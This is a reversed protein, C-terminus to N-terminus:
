SEGDADADADTDESYRHQLEQRIRQRESEGSAGGFREIFRRRLEAPDTEARRRMDAPDTSAPGPAATPSGPGAGRGSRPYLMPGASGLNLDSARRDPGADPSSGGAAPGRAAGSPDTRPRRAPDAHPVPATRLARTSPSLAAGDRGGPAPPQGHPRWSRGDERLTNGWVQLQQKADQTHESAQQRARRTTTPLGVSAGYAIRGGRHLLRYGRLRVLRNHARTSLLTRDSHQDHLVEGSRQNTITGDTDRYRDPPGDRRPGHPGAPGNTGGGPGSGTADPPGSGPADGQATPKRLRQLVPGDPRKGVLLGWAGRAGIGAGTAALAFPALGRSAEAGADALLRGTDLPMGTGDAMAALSRMIRQRTGLREYGAGLARLGYGGGTGMAGSGHVALAAGIESADGPLHTGGIKAYRMRLSLRQGASTIGALLRRHFALAALALANLALLREAPVDPGDTLVVDIGIAYSPLFTCIAFMGAVSIGLLALWKFAAQRNPGPLMAWVLLVSGVAAAAADAAQLGLLVFAASLPIASILLAAAFLLLVGATRWGTPEKAYAAASKGVAGAKELEKLFAAFQQDQSDLVPTAADLLADGPTLAVGKTPPQDPAPNKLKGKVCYKHAPGKIKSCADNAQKRDAKSAASTPKYGGSVWKLHLAYAKRDSAKAPDLIRGYQVLMYGKVVSVNTLSDQIPKTIRSASHSKKNEEQYCKELAPGSLGGGCPGADGSAIKGGWDYSDVTLQAVESASRKGQALPGDQGLLYDPRVFASAAFAAIVLTLVIEGLGKGGKGRVLLIGGFIFAWSLLLGKLGLTDVVIADYTDSLKQAPDALMTILPFRLAFDIAWCALGVVLRLLTFLGNMIFAYAHTKVSFISGGQASLEYGNIPVGESSDVNLPGMMDGGGDAAYAVQANVLLFVVALALAHLATRWRGRGSGWAIVM